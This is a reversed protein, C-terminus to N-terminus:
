KIRSKENELIADLVNDFEYPLSCKNIQELYTVNIDTVYHKGRVESLVKKWIGFRLEDQTKKM